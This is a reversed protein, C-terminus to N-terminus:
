VILSYSFISYWLILKKVGVRFCCNTTCSKVYNVVKFTIGLASIFNVMDQQASIIVSLLLGFTITPDMYLCGDALKNCM